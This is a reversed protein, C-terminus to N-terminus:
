VLSHLLSAVDHPLARGPVYCISFVPGRSLRSFIQFRKAKWSAAFRNLGVGATLLASFAEEGFIRSVALAESQEESVNQRLYFVAIVPKEQSLRREVVSGGATVSPVSIKAGHYGPIIDGSLEMIRAADGRMRPVGGLPTVVVEGDILVAACSDDDLIQWGNERQLTQSITSKGAGSHGTILVIGHPTALAATHLPLAGWKDPLRSLLGTVISDTDRRGDIREAAQQTTHPHVTLLYGDDPVWVVSGTGPLIAWLGNRGRVGHIASLPHGCVAPGDIDVPEESWVLQIDDPSAVVQEDIIQLLALPRESFVRRGYAAYIFSAV